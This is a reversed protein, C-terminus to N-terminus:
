YGGVTTSTLPIEVLTAANATTITTTTIGLGSIIFNDAGPSCTTQRVQLKLSTVSQKFTKNYKITSGMASSITMTDSSGDFGNVAPYGPDMGSADYEVYKSWIEDQNQGAPVGSGDSWEGGDVVMTNNDVDTSVVKVEDKPTIIPANYDVATSGDFSFARFFPTAGTAPVSGSKLYKVVKGNTGIAFWGNQLTVKNSETGDEYVVWSVYNGNAQDGYTYIEGTYGPNILEINLTFTYTNVADALNAITNVDGDHANTAPYSPDFGNPNDTFCVATGPLIEPQVVDGPRFYKLDPNPDTFALTIAPAAGSVSTIESTTLTYNALAGDGETMMVEEGNLEALSQDSALTVVDGNVDDIVDSKVDFDFTTGSLRVKAAYHQHLNCRSSGDYYYVFPFEKDTFRASDDPTESIVVSAIDPAEEQVLEDQITEWTVKKHENGVDTSRYVVFLDDNSLTMNETGKIQAVSVSTHGTNTQAIFLDNDDLAM